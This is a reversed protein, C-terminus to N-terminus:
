FQIFLYYILKRNANLYLSFISIIARCNEASRANEKRITIRAKQFFFYIPLSNAKKFPQLYFTRKALYLIDRYIFSFLGGKIMDQNIWKPDQGIALM